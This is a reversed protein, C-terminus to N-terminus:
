TRAAQDSGDVADAYLPPLPCDLVACFVRLLESEAVTVRGDHSVTLVLAEVLQRKATPTLEALAGLAEDLQEQWGDGPQLLQRVEAPGPGPQPMLQNLGAALSEAASKADRHGAAALIGFTRLLAPRIEAEDLRRRGHPQRGAPRRSHNLSREVIRALCYEFLQVRGDALVLTRLRALFFDLEADPRNRLTPFSLDLLPLRFQPGQRTVLDALSAVRAAREAGLQQQLYRLQEGRPEADGSLVLAMLLLPAERDAHAAEYLMPDIGRHLVHAIAVQGPDPAGASETVRDPSIAFERQAPPVVAGPALGVLTSRQDAAEHLENSAPATLVSPDFQPDLRQIREGLPPHTAFWGSLWGAQSFLMHSIEEGDATRLGADRGLGGIKKLAGALGEPQRTFQVASADALYERQRSVSARILRACWMGVAGVVTLGVAVILIVPAGSSGRGGSSRLGGARVGRLAIRGLYGILMIGFLPALMRINLRMDGNLIHSFEHAVVGQLEERNLRELAGRTVAVVADEPRFGAAFANIGDERELVFVRPVTVGSAISMEEVVNRLRRRLLDQTDAGVESGGLERAIRAGGGSLSVLRFLSALGVVSLVGLAILLVTDVNVGLWGPLDAVETSLVTPRGFWPGYLGYWTLTILLTVAGVVGALALAYLWVLRRSQRRSAEQASFFDM